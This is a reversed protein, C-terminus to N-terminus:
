VCHEADLMSNPQLQSRRSVPQCYAAMNADGLNGIVCEERGSSSKQNITVRAEPIPSKRRTLSLGQESSLADLEQDGADPDSRPKYIRMTLWARSRLDAVSFV